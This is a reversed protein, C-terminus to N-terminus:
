LYFHRLACLGTLPSLKWPVFYIFPDRPYPMGNGAHAQDRRRRVMVDIRDFIERLEDIVELIHIRMCANRYLQHRFNAHARYCRANGLCVRVDDQNATVAAAGSSGGEARDFM